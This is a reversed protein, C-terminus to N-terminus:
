TLNVLIGRTLGPNVLLGLQEFGGWFMMKWSKVDFKLKNSIKTLKLLSQGLKVQPQSGSTGLFRIKIWNFLDFKHNKPRLYIIIGNFLDYM